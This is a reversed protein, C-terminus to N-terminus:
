AAYGVADILEAIDDSAARRRHNVLEAVIQCAYSQQRLWAPARDRLDLLVGTADGYRGTQVYSWAVDLRSRQRSSPTVQPSRRIRAALTLARDPQDAIVATEVRLMAVGERSFDCGILDAHDVRRDGLRGAATAALSLMEAAEDRRADRVTAAAAKMLLYGWATLQAPTATSIRPEVQDATRVALAAADAFRGTRVLLWCLPAVAEAGVVQDGSARAHRMATDLAISALDVQRLQILLRGALQYARSTIAHAAHQADGDTVDLLARAHALLPPVATLAGAYDNRHYTGNAARVAATVAALTPPPGAPDVDLPAGDLGVLPTLARRVGILGVPEANPERNAVAGSADGLLAGTTVGLATALRALTKIEAGQHKRKRQELSRITDVSVGSLHALRQQTMGPIARRIRALNEGIKPEM